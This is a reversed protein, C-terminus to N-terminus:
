IVIAGRLEQVVLSSVKVLEFVQFKVSIESRSAFIIPGSSDMYCNGSVTLLHFILAFLVLEFVVWFRVVWNSHASTFVISGYQLDGRAAPSFFLLAFGLACSWDVFEDKDDGCGFNVVVRLMM